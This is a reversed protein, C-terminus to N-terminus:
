LEKRIADYRAELTEGADQTRSLAEGLQGVRADLKPLMQSVATTQRQLTGMRKWFAVVQEATAGPTLM